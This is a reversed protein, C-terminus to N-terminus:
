GDLLLNYLHATRFKVSGLGKRGVLEEHAVLDGDLLLEDDSNTWDIDLASLTALVSCTLLSTAKAACERDRPFGNHRADETLVNRPLIQQENSATVGDDVGTSDVHSEELDMARCDCLKQCHDDADADVQDEVEATEADEDELESMRYLKTDVMATIVDSRDEDIIGRSNDLDQSQLFNHADDLGGPCCVPGITVDARVGVDEASPIGYSQGSDADAKGGHGPSISPGVGREDEQTEDERDREGLCKPRQTDQPEEQLVEGKVDEQLELLIIRQEDTEPSAEASNTRLSRRVRRAERLKAEEVRGERELRRFVHARTPTPPSYDHPRMPSSDPSATTIKLALRKMRGHPVLSRPSHNLGLSARSPEVPESLGEEDRSEDANNEDEEESEGTECGVPAEDQRLLRAYERSAAERMNRLVRDADELSRQRTAVERVIDIHFKHNQAMRSYVEELGLALVLEKNSKSLNASTSSRSSKRPRKKKAVSSGESTNSRSVSMTGGILSTGVSKGSHLARLDIHQVSARRDDTYTDVPPIKNDGALTWRREPNVLPVRFPDNVSPDNLAASNPYPSLSAHKPPPGPVPPPLEHPSAAPFSFRNHGIAHAPGKAQMSDHSSLRRKAIPSLKDRSLSIISKQKRRRPPWEEYEADADVEEDTGSPLSDRLVPRLQRNANSYASRFPGEVLHPAEKRSTRLSPSARLIQPPPSSFIDDEDRSVITQKRLSPPARKPEQSVASMHRPAIGPRSSDSSM